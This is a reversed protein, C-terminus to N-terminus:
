SIQSTNFGFIANFCKRANDTDLFISMPVLATPIWIKYEKNPVQLGICRKWGCSDFGSPDAVKFKGCDIEVRLKSGGIGPLVVVPNCPGSKFEALYEHRSISKPDKGNTCAFKTSGLTKEINEAYEQDQQEYAQQIVKHHKDIIDQLVDKPEESLTAATVSVCICSVLIGIFLLSSIKTRM